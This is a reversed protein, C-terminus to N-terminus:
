INPKLIDNYANKIILRKKSNIKFTLIRHNLYM